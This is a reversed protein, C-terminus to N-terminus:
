NRSGAAEQGGESQKRTWTTTRGLGMWAAGVYGRLKMTNADALTAQSNYTKGSKPDYIEGGTWENKGKHTLGRVITLGVIPTNRRSADPNHQDVKPKGEENMPEKLWVIKGEYNSGNREIRILSEQGESYWEGVIAEPTQSYGQVAVFLFLLLVLKRM